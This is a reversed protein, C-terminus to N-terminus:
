TVRCDYDGTDPNVHEGDRDIPQRCQWCRPPDGMPSTREVAPLEVPEPIGDLQELLRATM